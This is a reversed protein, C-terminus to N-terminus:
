SHVPRVHRRNGALEQHVMAIGAELADRPSTLTLQRGDLEITGSDPQEIGALIKGLTSKGAGNEGCVAHCTGAVVSFTVGDLAQVGPFRKSLGRFSIMRGTM